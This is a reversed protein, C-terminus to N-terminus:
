MEGCRFSRWVGASLPKDIELFVLHEPDFNEACLDAAIRKYIRKQPPVPVNLEIMAWKNVDLIIGGELGPIMVRMEKFDMQLKKTESEEIAICFLTNQDSYLHFSLTDDWRDWFNALPLLLVAGLIVLQVRGALASWMDALSTGSPSRLFLVYSFLVMAINWPIVVSNRNDGLPDLFIFIMAHLVVVGVFALRRTRSFMLLCALAIELMPLAYGLQTMAGLDADMFRDVFQPFVDEVFGSNFKHVGSWFYITIIIGRFYLLYQRGLSFCFPLFFLLYHYTWPQWRMQDQFCMWLLLCFILGVIWRRQLFLNGLILVVLFGLQMWAVIAPLQGLDIM